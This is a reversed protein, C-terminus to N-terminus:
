REISTGSNERKRKYFEHQPSYQIKIQTNIVLSAFNDFNIAVKIIRFEQNTLSLPIFHLLTDKCIKLGM